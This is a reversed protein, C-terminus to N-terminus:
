IEITMGERAAVTDPFLERARREIEEVADDDHTPEHHFLVLKKVGAKKVIEAAAEFTSHGWGM